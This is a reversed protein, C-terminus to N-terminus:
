RDSSIEVQEPSRLWLEPQGRYSELKGTVCIRRHLYYTEPKEPFRGRYTGDIKVSLAQNPYAKGLNLFTIRRQGRTDYYGDAVYGCVRVRKGMHSQVEGLAITTPSLWGGLSKKAELENELSDPLYPFFDIECVEELSDISVVFAELEQDSARHPLLLAIAQQSQPAYLVKYFAAPVSVRNPGIRDLPPLSLVPGTIVYLQEKEQAWDRVQNELRHWVGGNFAHVQPSMNSLFFSESMAEYAFKMDGAPALHGRDYGSRRYDTLEASGTRIAPDERYDNTRSVHGQLHQRNLEYAVWQAQEHKELYSLSFHRYAYVRGKKSKPLYPQAFLLFPLICFPLFILSTKRTM